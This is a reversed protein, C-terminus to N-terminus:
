IAARLPLLDRLAVGVKVMEGGEDEDLDCAGIYVEYIHELRLADQLQWEKGLSSSV